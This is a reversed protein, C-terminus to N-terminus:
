ISSNRRMEYRMLWRLHIVQILSRLTLGLRSMIKTFLRTTGGYTNEESIVHDGASLRKVIAEIPALGSSFAIGSSGNELVAISAELAERTPNATRGYDYNGKNPEGVANQVYTATQFIPTMIAGTIPEPSVGAHVAQTGFGLGERPEKSM